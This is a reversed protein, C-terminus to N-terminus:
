RYLLPLVGSLLSRPDSRRVHSLASIVSHVGDRAINASPSEPASPMHAEPTITAAVDPSGACRMRRDYPQRTTLAGLGVIAPHALPAGRSDMRQCHYDPPNTGSTGTRVPIQTDGRRRHPYENLESTSAPSRRRSRECRTPPLSSDLASDCARRISAARSKIATSQTASWGGPM